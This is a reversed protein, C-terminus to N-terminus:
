PVSEGLRKAQPAAEYSVLNTPDSFATLRAIINRYKEELLSALHGPTLLGYQLKVKLTAQFATSSEFEEFAKSPAGEEPWDRISASRYTLVTAIARHARGWNWFSWAGAICYVKSLAGGSVSFRALKPVDWSPEVDLDGRGAAESNILFFAPFLQAAERAAARFYPQHQHMTEVLNAWHVSWRKADEPWDSGIMIKLPGPPTLAAYGNEFNLDSISYREVTRVLTRYHNELSKKFYRSALFTGEPGELLEREIRDKFYREVAFGLKKVGEINSDLATSAITSYFPIFGTCEWRGLREVINIEEEPFVSKDGHAKHKCSVLWRGAAGSIVGEAGLDIGGDSGRSPYKFIRLRKVQTFFELTFLEFDDVCGGKPAPSKPCAIETFDILGM